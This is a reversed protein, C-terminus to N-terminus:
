ATEAVARRLVSLSPGSCNPAAAPCGRTRRVGDGGCRAQDFASKGHCRAERIRRQDSIEAKETKCHVEFGDGAPTETCQAAPCDVFHDKQLVITETDRVDLEAETTGRPGRDSMISAGDPDSIFRKHVTRGIGGLDGLSVYSGSWTPHQTTSLLSTGKLVANFVIHDTGNDASSDNAEPIQSFWNKSYPQINRSALFTEISRLPESPLTVRYANEGEVTMTADIQANPRLFVSSWANDGESPGFQFNTLTVVTYGAKLQARGVAFSYIPADRVEKVGIEIAAGEDTLPVSVVGPAAGALVGKVYVFPFVHATPTESIAIDLTIESTEAAICRCYIASLAALSFALVAIHTVRSHHKM